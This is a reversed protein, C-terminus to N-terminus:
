KGVGEEKVGGGRSAVRRTFTEIFREKASIAIAREAACGCEASAASEGERRRAV